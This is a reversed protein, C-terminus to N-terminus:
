EKCFELVEKKYESLEKQTQGAEKKIVYCYAFVIPIVLNNENSYFEDIEKVVDDLSFSKSKNKELLENVENSCLLQKSGPFRNKIIKNKDLIGSLYNYKMNNYPLQSVEMALWSYGNEAGKTYRSQASLITSIFIIGALILYFKMQEKYNITLNKFNIKLCLEM